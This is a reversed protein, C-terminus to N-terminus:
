RRAGAGYTVDDPSGSQKQDYRQASLLRPVKRSIPHPKWGIPAPAAFMLWLVRYKVNQLRRSTGCGGRLVRAASGLCLLPKVREAAKFGRSSALIQNREAETESELHLHQNEIQEEAIRSNGM